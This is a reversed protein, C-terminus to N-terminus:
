RKKSTVYLTFCIYLSYVSYVRFWLQYALDPLRPQGVIQSSSAPVAKRGLRGSGPAAVDLRGGRIGERWLQDSPKTCHKMMMKRTLNADNKPIHEMKLCGYPQHRWDKVEKAPQHSHRNWQVKFHWQSPHGYNISGVKPFSALFEHTGRSVLTAISLWRPEYTFWRYLRDIPVRVLIM